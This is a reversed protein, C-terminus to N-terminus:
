SLPKRAVSFPLAMPVARPLRAVLAPWDMMFPRCVPMPRRSVMSFKGLTISDSPYLDSSAWFLMLSMMSRRSPRGVAVCSMTVRVWDMASEVPLRSRAVRLARANLSMISALPADAPSIVCACPTRFRTSPLPLAVTAWHCDMWDTMGAWSAATARSSRPWLPETSSSRSLSLSPVMPQFSKRCATTFSSSCPLPAMAEKSSCARALECPM